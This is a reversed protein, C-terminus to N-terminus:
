SEAKLTLAQIAYCVLDQTEVAMTEFMIDKSIARLACLAQWAAPSYEEGWERRYDRALERQQKPTIVTSNPYRYALRESRRHAYVWKPGYRESIFAGFSKQKPFAEGARDAADSSPLREATKQPAQLLAPSNSPM